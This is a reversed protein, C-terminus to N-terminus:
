LDKGSKQRQRDSGERSILHGIRAYFHFGAKRNRCHEPLNPVTADFFLATGPVILRDVPGVFKSGDM